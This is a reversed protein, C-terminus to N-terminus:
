RLDVVETGAPVQSKAFKFTSATTAVHTKYNSVKLSQSGKATTYTAGTLVWSKSISLTIGKVQSKKKPTLKLLYGSATKNATMSYDAKLQQAASLPNLMVLESATPNTVNVEGTAKSWTWQTTGDYWSKLTPSLIRFQSGKMVITGSGGAMTYTASVAGAKKYANVTNNFITTASQAQAAIAVICLLLTSLIKKAKM